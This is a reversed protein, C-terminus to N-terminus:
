QEEPSAQQAGEVCGVVVGADACVPGADGGAVAEITAPANGELRNNVFVYARQRKGLAREAIARLATRTPPDPERIKEYPEWANVAQEYTRGKSLLARTVSFDATFADPIAIQETLAPMRTWANFVHAVNHRALVGFYDPILYDRNRIEVAYRWGRPLGWLFGDLRGLFEGPTAFDRQAFTGFEFILAAM